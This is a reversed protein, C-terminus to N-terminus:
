KGYFLEPNEHINGIVTIEALVYNYFTDGYGEKDKLKFGFHTSDWQVLLTTMENDLWCLASIIDGDYIPNGNKDNWGIYQGITSTVVEDTTWVGDAYERIEYTPLAPNEAHLLDGYMWHQEEGAGRTTM